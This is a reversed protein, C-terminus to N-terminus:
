PHNKDNKTRGPIQQQFARAFLSVPLSVPLFAGRECALSIQHRLSYPTAGGNLTALVRAPRSTDSNTAFVSPKKDRKSDATAIENEWGRGESQSIREVSNGTLRAPINALAAASPAIAFRAATPNVAFASPSQAARATVHHM